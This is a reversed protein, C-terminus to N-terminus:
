VVADPYKELVRALRTLGIGGGFRPVMKLSLYEELEDLVRDRGFLRFLINAYEGNSIQYFIKRMEDTDTAREASGITEIGGIIVDVKNFINDGRHKMNWFPHTRLPFRELLIPVGDYDDHLRREHTHDLVMTDYKRCIEDYSRVFPIPLGLAHLLGREVGKLDEMDGYSEFEFMPFIKDHRGSIPHPEDRYSTTQCFVGAITGRERLLLERELWMQGTQPLPYLVKDFIFTSITQPDECAALISLRSQAPVEIYGLTYQFFQRLRRSVDNFDHITMFVGKLMHHTLKETKKKVLEVKQM